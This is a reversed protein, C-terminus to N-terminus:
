RLKHSSCERLLPMSSHPERKPMKRRPWHAKASSSPEVTVIDWQPLLAFTTGYKREFEVEERLPCTGM